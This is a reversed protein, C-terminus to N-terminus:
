VDGNFEEHGFVGAYDFDARKETLFDFFVVKNEEGIPGMPPYGQLFNDKPPLDM